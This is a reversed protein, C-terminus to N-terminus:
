HGDMTVSDALEIGALRTRHTTSFLLPGGWAADVHFHARAERAIEGLEFLPDISGSDTTGAIGVIALLCTGESHCRKVVRRMAVLDIRNECDVPVKILGSTGIGLIEAAKDISYHMLSSGAIAAGRYGHAKLAAPLGEREVGAFGGRPGLRSNRACWLATINAVTGGSTVVGLTSDPQQVHREYFDEPRDFILRHMMALTQNEYATLAKATEVKVMNQNMATILRALPRVFYPLATTMHGIFRPSSTHISHAVINENIYDLYEFPNLAARRFNSDRLMTAMMELDMRSSANRSDLFESILTSIRDDLERELSLDDSPLAFLAAIQEESCGGPRGPESFLDFEIESLAQM